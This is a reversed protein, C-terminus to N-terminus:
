RWGQLNIGWVFIFARVLNLMAIQSASIDVKGADEFLEPDYNAALIMPMILDGAELQVGEVECAERVYRPKASQVPSVFRLCEEVAMDLKSWDDKLAQLQDPHQLLALVGGSILHTTTEHSALLLLFIMAVLEDDSMEGEEVDLHVLEHILGEGGHKRERAIRDEIYRTLPKLKNIAFVFSVIGKVTTIGQAWDAFKSWDERPLGLLKCIVALPMKRAFETILDVSSESEFLKSAYEAALADIDTELSLVARRHFAQDVISRLRSHEPEDTSLMNATLKILLKPM